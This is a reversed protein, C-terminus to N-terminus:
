FLFEGSSSTSRTRARSSSKVVQPSSREPESELESDDKPASEDVLEISENGMGGDRYRSLPSVAM